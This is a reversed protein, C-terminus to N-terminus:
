LEHIGRTILTEYVSLSFVLVFGIFYISLIPIIGINMTEIARVIAILSMLAGLGELLTSINLNLQYKKDRWVDESHTIAYKPTRHFIGTKDSLLGAIVQISNSISIGYGLIVLLILQKINKTLKMKQVILAYTCYLLVSITSLIVLLSFVFWPLIQITFFVLRLKNTSQPLESAFFSPLSFNVAFSIVDVNLFTTLLALIFSSVMLPHVLYYTLHIAAEIKEAISLRGSSFIRKLLKRATQISGRAWRGQQRKFAAITPPLEGPVEVGNLYIAKYGALQIRYSLDLDEALTNPQWSGAEIIAKKRLLGASGNFNMLYGSSNRGCQEAIFHADVGIAISQTLINYNRDIHGWRCQVFGIEENNLMHPITKELFDSPPVFDADFIAIFEEDTEELAKQLAGAKYGERSARRIVKINFGNSRLESAVSDVVDKTEDTSDDIIYIKVLEKGYNEAMLACAKMIRPAVYLENYIPIHVAVNPKISPSSYKPESYKKSRITLHLTNLGYVFFAVGVLVSASLLISEVQLVFVM